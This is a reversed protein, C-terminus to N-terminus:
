KWYNAFVRLKESGTPMILDVQERAAIVHITSLFDPAGAPPVPYFEIGPLTLTRIDTGVVRHKRALLLTAVNQGAPGGIGTVLFASM